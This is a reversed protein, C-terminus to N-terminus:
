YLCSFILMWQDKVLVESVAVKESHEIPTSAIFNHSKLFTMFQNFNEDKLFSNKLVAPQVACVYAPKTFLFNTDSNIKELHVELTCYQHVM